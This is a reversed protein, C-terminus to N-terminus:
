RFALGVLFAVIGVLGGLWYGLNVILDLERQTVNRVIEEMRLTSFSRVKEEVMEEVRLQEVVLPIQRHVWGWAADSLGHRLRTITEGGLWDAPRGIPRDLLREALTVLAEEVRAVGAESALANGVAEAVAGPPLAGILEGWTRRGAADLAQEVGHALAQRSELGRLTQLLGETLSDALAVRREPALRAIREGLPVRLYTRVGDAIAAGMRARIEAGQFAAAFRDFGEGAFGDVLRALTKDTVVLKAVLREHLLLERVAHDFADRLAAQLQARAAPDALVDGVRALALPLYDAIAQEVAGILRPPIRDELPQRDEELLTIQRLIFRRAPEALADGDVLGGVWREVQAALKVQRDPTLTASLPIDALEERGQAIWRAASSEFAPSRAHEAFRAAIQRAMGPLSSRVAQVLDPGLSESLPGHERTLIGELIGEVARDFLARITPAELRRSLDEATLLREGVVRGVSRALRAKNKPIAGQLTFPGLKYPEHPHFLMWVAVANTIGGSLAGVGITVAGSVLTQSDM